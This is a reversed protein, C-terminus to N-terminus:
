GSAWVKGFAGARAAPAKPTGSMNSAETTFTGEVVSTNHNTSQCHRSKRRWIGAASATSQVNLSVIIFFSFPNVPERLRRLKSPCATPAAPM